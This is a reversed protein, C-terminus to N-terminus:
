VPQNHRHVLLHIFKSEPDLILKLKKSALGSKIHSKRQNKKKNVSSQYVGTM